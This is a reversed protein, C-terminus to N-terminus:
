HAAHWAKAQSEVTSIRKGLAVNADVLHMGWDPTLDGDDDAHIASECGEDFLPSSTPRSGMTDSDSCKATISGGAPLTGYRLM